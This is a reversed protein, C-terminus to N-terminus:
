QSNRIITTCLALAVAFGWVIWGASILRDNDRNLGIIKMAMSAFAVIISGFWCVGYVAEM